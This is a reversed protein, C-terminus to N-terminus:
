YDEDFIYDNDIFWQLILKIDLEKFRQNNNRTTTVGNIKRLKVHFSMEGTNQKGNLRTYNVYLNFLEINPIKIINNANLFMEHELRETIFTHIFVYHNPISNTKMSQYIDTIPRNKQWDAVNNYKLKYNKLYNFLIAMSNKSDIIEYLKSALNKNIIKPNFFVFRREHIPINIVNESNTTILVRTCSSEQCTDQGKKEITVNSETILNKLPGDKDFMYKPVVEDLCILVKRSLESNFKGLVSELSSVEVANVPYFLGCLLRILTGKGVGQVSSIGVAVGNKRGPNQIMDAIWSILYDSCESLNVNSNDNFPTIIHNIFENFIHIVEQENTDDYNYNDYPFGNWLNYVNKGTDAPPPLFDFDFYFRKQNDVNWKEIFDKNMLHAFTPNPLLTNYLESSNKFEQMLPSTTELVYLDHHFKNDRETFFFNKEFDEKWIRYDDENIDSYEREITKLEAKSKVKKNMDIMNVLSGLKVGDYKYKFNDITKIAEDDYKLGGESFMKAYKTPDKECNEVSTNFLGFCIKLWIDRDCDPTIQDKLKQVVKAMKDAGDRETFNSKFALREIKSDVDHVFADRKAYAWGGSLVDGGKVKKVSEKIEGKFFIHPLGKTISPYWPGNIVPFGEVDIDFQHVEDTFIAIYESPTNQRAIIEDRELTYYDDPKAKYGNKFQVPKKDVLKVPEWLINNKNLFDILPMTNTM